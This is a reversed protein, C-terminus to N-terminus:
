RLHRMLETASKGGVGNLALSPKPIEQLVFNSFLIFVFCFLFCTAEQKLDKLNNM